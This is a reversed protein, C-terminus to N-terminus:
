AVIPRSELGRMIQGRSKKLHRKSARVAAAANRAQLADIIKNHDSMADDMGGVGDRVSTLSVVCLRDYNEMLGAMTQALRKNGSLECLHLHFGRNYVAFEELDETNATRLRDLDILVSDEANAVAYRLASAELIERLDLMDQADAVSIPAVRHGRRPVIEVLGEYELKQLADRIPSKSVGFRRALENERVEEGPRINCSLIEKRLAQFVKHRILTDSM